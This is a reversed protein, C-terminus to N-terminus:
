FDDPLGTDPDLTMRLTAVYNRSTPGMEFTRCSRELRGVVAEYEPGSMPRTGLLLAAAQWMADHIYGLSRGDPHRRLASYIEKMEADRRDGFFASLQLVQAEFVAFADDYGEPYDGLKPAPKDGRFLSQLSEVRWTAPEKGDWLSVQHRDMGSPIPFPPRGKAEVPLAVALMRELDLGASVVTERLSPIFNELKLIPGFTKFM